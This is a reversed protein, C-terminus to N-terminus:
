QEPPRSSPLPSAFFEVRNRGAEKARYLAADASGLLAELEAPAPSNTVAVGLSISVDVPENRAKVPESRVLQCIREALKVGDELKCGPLVLLFEEGGFRGLTDYPRLSSQMRRAVECLVEDGAQHGRSDNIRKFHDLDAMVVCVPNGSRSGRNLEALLSDFSARRNLLGTLPDHTALERLAEQARILRDQLEIIREGAHIRARLEQPDFPKILYDDAGAEIGEVVDQKQDRSTLLLLYIFPEPKRQRIARCIEVGDMSPMMWDLLALRPRDEGQLVKWAESGNSAVVVQYGWKTLFTKLMHRFTIEDEAVLIRTSSM